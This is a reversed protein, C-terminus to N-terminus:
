FIREFHLSLNKFKSQGNVEEIAEVFDRLPLFTDAPSFFYEYHRGRECIFELLNIGNQNLVQTFENASKTDQDSPGSCDCYNPNINPHNHFILVSLQNEQMAKKVIDEVSLYPSVGSRDFGKNLWILDVKKDKEFAIIIWEHKKYKLLVAAIAPFGLLSEDIRYFEGNPNMQKKFEKNVVFERINFLFYLRIQRNRKKDGLSKVEDKTLPHLYIVIFILLIFLFIGILVLLFEM